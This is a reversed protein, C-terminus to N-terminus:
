LARRVLEFYYLAGRASILARLSSTKAKRSIENWFVEQSEIMKIARRVRKRLELMEVHKSCLIFDKTLRVMAYM